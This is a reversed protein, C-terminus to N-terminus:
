KILPTKVSGGPRINNPIMSLREKNRVPEILKIFINLFFNEGYDFACGSLIVFRAQSRQPFRQAPNFGKSREPCVTSGESCVQVINRAYQVM